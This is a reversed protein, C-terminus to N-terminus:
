LLILLEMWHLFHESYFIQMRRHLDVVSHSAHVCCAHHIWSRAAYETARSGNYVPLDWSYDLPTNFQASTELNMCNYKLTNSLNDLCRSALLHHGQESDIYWPSSRPCRDPDILYDRFSPHIV